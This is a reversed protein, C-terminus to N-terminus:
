ANSSGAERNNLQGQQLTFLLSAITIAGSGKCSENTDSQKWPQQTKRWLCKCKYGGYAEKYVRRCGAKIHTSVCNRRHHNCAGYVSFVPHFVSLLLLAPCFVARSKNNM